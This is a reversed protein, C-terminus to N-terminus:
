HEPCRDKPICIAVVVLVYVARFIIVCHPYITTKM